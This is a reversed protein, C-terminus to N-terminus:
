TGLIVKLGQYNSGIFYYAIGARIIDRHIIQKIRGSKGYLYLLSVVTCM